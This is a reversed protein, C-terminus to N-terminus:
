PRDRANPPEDVADRALGLADDPTAAAAACVAGLAPHPPLARPRSGHAPQSSVRGGAARGPRPGRAAPHAPLLVGVGGPSRPSAASRSWARRTTGCARRCSRGIPAPSSSTTSEPASSSRASCRHTLSEDRGYKDARPCPRLVYLGAAPARGRAARLRSAKRLQLVEAVSARDALTGDDGGAARHRAARARDARRRRPHRRGRAARAEPLQDVILPVPNLSHATNPSGDPELM